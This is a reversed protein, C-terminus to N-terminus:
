HQKRLMLTIGEVLPPLIERTHTHICACMYVSRMHLFDRIVLVCIHVTCLFSHLMLMCMYM